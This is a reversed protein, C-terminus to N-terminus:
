MGLPSASRKKTKNKKPKYPPPNQLKKLNGKGMGSYLYRNIYLVEKKLADSMFESAKDLMEQDNGLSGLITVCLLSQTENTGDEYIDNFLTIMKKIKAQDRGRLTNQVARNGGQKEFFEAALFEGYQEVNAHYAERLEPFLTAFRSGLTNADYAAIGNKAASKSVPKPMNAKSRKQMTKKGFHKELTERFENVIYKVDREDCMDPDLGTVAADTFDEDGAEDATLNTCALTIKKEEQIIRACGRPGSYDLITKKGDTRVPLESRKARDRGALTMQTAEFTESLGKDINALVELLEM